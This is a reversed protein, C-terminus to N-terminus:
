CIVYYCYFIVAVTAIDVALCQKSLHINISNFHTISQCSKQKFGGGQKLAGTQLIDPKM